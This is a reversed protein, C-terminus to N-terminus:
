SGILRLMTQVQGQRLEVIKAALAKVDPAGGGTTEMRAVEVTNHHHGLLLSLAVRDVDTDAARRAADVDEPRLSLGGGGHQAHVNERPDAAHSEGWADLWGTMQTTEAAWQEGMQEALQRVEPHRARQVTLQVLDAAQRHYDLTMQLFMVDTANHAAAAVPQPAPGSCATVTLLGAMLVLRRHV